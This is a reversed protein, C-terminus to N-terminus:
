EGGFDIFDQLAELVAPKIKEPCPCKLKEWEEQVDVQALEIKKRNFEAAAEPSELTFSGNEKMDIRGDKDKKGYEQALKMEERTYFEAHQQLRSKLLVLAHATKYDLEREMLQLAAMYAAVCKLILM